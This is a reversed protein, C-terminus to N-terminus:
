ENRGSCKIYAKAEPHIEENASVLNGRINYHYCSGTSNTALTHIAVCGLNCTNACETKTKSGMNKRPGTWQGVHSFYFGTLGDSDECVIILQM